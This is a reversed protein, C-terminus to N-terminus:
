LTSPFPVLKGRMLCDCLHRLQDQCYQIEVPDQNYALSTLFAIAFVGCDKTGIQKQVEQMRYKFKANAVKRVLIVISQKRLYVLFRLHECSKKAIQIQLWYGTTDPM